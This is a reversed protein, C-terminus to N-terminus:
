TPSLLVLLRPSASAANFLESMRLAADGDLRALPPQGPPTHRPAFRNWTWAAAPVAALAAAVLAIRVIRSKM